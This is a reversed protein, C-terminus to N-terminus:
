KSTFKDGPFEGADSVPNEGSWYDITNLVFLDALGAFFYVPVITFGLFVLEKGTDSTNLNANWNRVGNFANFPGLCSASFLALALGAALASKRFM